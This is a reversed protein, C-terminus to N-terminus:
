INPAHEGGKPEFSTLTNQAAGVSRKWCGNCAPRASPLLGVSKLVFRMGRGTPMVISPGSANTFTLSFSTMYCTVRWVPRLQATALLAAPLEVKMGVNAQWFLRLFVSLPSPNSLLLQM